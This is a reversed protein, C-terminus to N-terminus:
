TLDLNKLIAFPSEVVTKENNGYVLASEDQNENGCPAPAPCHIRAPLGLFVVDNVLQSLNILDDEIFYTDLDEATLTMERPPTESFAPRFVASVVEDIKLGVSEGCRDCPCAAIGTVKGSVLVFGATDKRLSLSGSLSTSGPHEPSINKAISLVWEDDPSFQIDKPASIQQSSIQM